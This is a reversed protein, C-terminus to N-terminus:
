AWVSILDHRWFHPCSIPARESSFSCTLDGGEPDAFTWTEQAWIVTYRWHNRTEDAAQGYSIGAVVGWVFRDGHAPEAYFDRLFMRVRCGPSIPTEPPHSPDVLKYPGVALEEHWLALGRQVAPSFEMATM